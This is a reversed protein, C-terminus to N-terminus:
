PSLAPERAQHGDLGHDLAWRVAQSRDQVRMTAYAARVYTDTRRETLYLVKAIEQDTLGTAILAVVESERPSLGYARGPWEAMQRDMSSASGRVIDGAAVREVAVVIEEATAAKSMYGSAGQRLVLAHEQQTLTWSYVIVKLGSIALLGDLEPGPEPNGFTDFLAVQARGAPPEAHVFQHVRVRSRFPALMAAVGTTVLKYDSVIALNIPRPMGFGPKAIALALRFGATM